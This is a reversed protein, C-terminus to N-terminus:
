LAPPAAAAADPEAALARQRTVDTLGNALQLYGRLADMVMPAVNGLGRRAAVAPPVDQEDFAAVPLRALHIEFAEGGDGCFEAEVQRQDAM